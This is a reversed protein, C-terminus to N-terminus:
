LPAPGAPPTADTASPVVVVRHSPASRNSAMAHSLLFRLFAALSGAVAPSIRLPDALGDVNVVLTDDAEVYGSVPSRGEAMVQALDAGPVLADAAHDRPM